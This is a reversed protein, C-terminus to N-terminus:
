RGRDPAELDDVTRDPRWGRWVPHRFRGDPTWESFRVEGILVPEVWNADAADAPPVGVLATSARGLREFRLATAALERDSFGSGVRGAYHLLGDSGPVGLLLSGIGGSRGGRGPRWGAM